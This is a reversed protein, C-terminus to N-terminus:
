SSQPSSTPINSIGAGISSLSKNPDTDAVTEVRATLAAATQNAATQTEDVVTDAVAETSPSKNNKEMAGALPLPGTDLAPEDPPRGTQASNTSLTIQASSNTCLM